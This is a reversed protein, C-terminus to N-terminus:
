DRPQAVIREPNRLVVIVGLLAIATGIFFAAGPREGLMAMGLAVTMLPFM